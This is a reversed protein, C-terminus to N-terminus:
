TIYDRMAQGLYCQSEESFITCWLMAELLRICARREAVSESHQALELLLKRLVPSSRAIRLSNREIELLRQM